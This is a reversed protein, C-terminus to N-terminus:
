AFHMATLRWRAADSSSRDPQRWRKCFRRSATLWPSIWCCWPRMLFFVLFLFPNFLFRLSYFLSCLVSFFCFFSFPLSVWIRRFWSRRLLEVVARKGSGDAVWRQHVASGHIIKLAAGSGDDDKGLWVIVRSARSYVVAMFQVQQKREILDAQNICIADIWLVRALQSDRLHILASYLSAAVPFEKDNVRIHDTSKPSGWAYSLAEYIDGQQQSYILSYEFLQCRVPAEPHPCPLIRLLRICGNPMTTSYSFSGRSPSATEVAHTAM